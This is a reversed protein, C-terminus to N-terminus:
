RAGGGAIRIGNFGKGVEGCTEGRGGGNEEESVAKSHRSRWLKLRINNEDELYRTCYLQLTNVDYDMHRAGILAEEETLGPYMDWVAVDM